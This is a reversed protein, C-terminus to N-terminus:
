RCRGRRLRRLGPEAGVEPRLPRRHRQGPQRLPPFLGAPLGARAILTGRGAPGAADSCSRPRPTPRGRCRGRRDALLRDPRPDAAADPGRRAAGDRAAAALQFLTNFPLQQIGTAAYLEARRSAALVREVVGATRGDRYHVPNGLLAGDADLLGYDVGWSDIGSAPSSSRGRQRPGCDLSSRATCGCSTGTCRARGRDGATPSGTRRTCNALEGAGVERRGDGARRVRRPRRRGGSRPALSAAAM